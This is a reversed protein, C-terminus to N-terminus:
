AQLSLKMTPLFIISIETKHILLLTKNKVIGLFLLPGNGKEIFCSKDYVAYGYYLPNLSKKTNLFVM